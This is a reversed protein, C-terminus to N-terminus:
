RRHPAAEPFAAALANAYFASTLQMHDATLAAAREADRALVAYALKRHEDRILDAPMNSGMLVRRYRAHQEALRRQQELMRPSGCAVILALHFADHAANWADLVESTPNAEARDTAKILRHLAAIVGAEWADDGVAISRRIAAAEIAARMLAIDDLDDRSLAAVRFGRNSEVEVLGEGILRSLAERLPSAGMAYRSKLEDIRLKATPKLEGAVIDAKLAIEARDAFTLDEISTIDAAMSGRDDAVFLYKM